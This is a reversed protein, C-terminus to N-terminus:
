KQYYDVASITPYRNNMSMIESLKDNSEVPLWAITIQHEDESDFNCKDFRKYFETCNVCRLSESWLV